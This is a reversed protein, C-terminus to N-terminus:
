RDSRVRRSRERKNWNAPVCLRGDGDFQAPGLGTRGRGKKGSLDGAARIWLLEEIAGFLADTGPKAVVKRIGAKKAELETSALRQHTYLVIPTSPLIKGIERAASLGDMVPMTLDLIIIDPKLETAKLVAKQGNEARACVEWYGHGQILETLRTRTVQDGAILIRKTMRLVTTKSSRYSDNIQNRFHAIWRGVSQLAIHSDSDM